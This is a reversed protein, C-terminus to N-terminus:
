RDAGVPDPNLSVPTRNESKRDSIRTTTGFYALRGM